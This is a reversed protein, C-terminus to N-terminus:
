EGRLADMPQVSAARRAPIWSAALAVTMLLIAAGCLTAPDDPAIGFLMSELLRGLVLSAAIGIAVAMASLWSAERLVMTVVQPPVAGLALRIGIEKTRRAVSYAMVGYIGVAALALALMGFGSTLTVFLREDRLDADIQEQQTRVNVLPLEPDATHVVRGVAAVIAEPNTETRIQYTLRRIQTQQAYPVFFQPPALGDLDAYLTDACVGVIEIPRSTLIDGYGAHVNVLFTKGIPDQNTFRRKALSQNIIGVPPSSTTDRSEFARGAVIPVGLTEFFRIGVANYAEPRPRNPDIEEGQPVFNTTLTDGSLYAVEAPSVSTVGPIDAIARELRQHFAVNAGAPYRNQPLVVQALLLHDTRFGPDVANLGALSRIFLGAAIVLL